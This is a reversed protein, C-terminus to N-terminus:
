HLIAKARFNSDAQAKSTGGYIWLGRNILLNAVLGVMEVTPM